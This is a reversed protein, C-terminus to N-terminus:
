ANLRYLKMANDRVIKRRVEASVGTLEETVVGAVGRHRVDGDLMDDAIQVMLPNPTASSSAKRLANAIDAEPLDPNEECALIFATATSRVDKPHSM